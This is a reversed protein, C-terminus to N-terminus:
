KRMQRRVAYVALVAVLLFLNLFFIVLRANSFIPKEALDKAKKSKPAGDDPISQPLNPQSMTPPVVRLDHVTLSPEQNRVVVDSCRRYLKDDFGEEVTTFKLYHTQEEGIPGIFNIEAETPICFAGIWKTGSCKMDLIKSDPIQDDYMEAKRVMWGAASEIELQLKGTRGPGKHGLAAVQIQGDDQKEVTEIKDIQAAIKRGLSWLFIWKLKNPGADHPGFVLSDSTTGNNKVDGNASMHYYTVVNHTGSVDSGWYGWQKTKVQFVDIGDANAHQASYPPTEHDVTTIEYGFRDADFTLKFDLNVEVTRRPRSNAMQQTRVTGAVTAGSEFLADFAQMNQLIEDEARKSDQGWCNGLLILACSGAILTTHM